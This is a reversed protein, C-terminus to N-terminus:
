KWTHPVNVMRDAHKCPHPENCVFGRYECEPVMFLALWRDIPLIAKRIKVMTRVTEIHAKLCLRKRAMNILAQANILMAHNVPQWRGADGSYGLGDERNSKVFHDVGVHHRVLHVSVFTPIDFMEIWFLQTRIPSHESRYMKALDAKSKMDITFSCADRLLGVDTLKQVTVVSRIPENNGM